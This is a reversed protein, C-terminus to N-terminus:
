LNGIRDTSTQQVKAVDRSVLNNRAGNITQDQMQTQAGMNRLSSVFAPSQLESVPVGIFQSLRVQQPFPLEQAKGEVEALLQGIMHGYLTPYVEVLTERHAATFTGAALHDLAMEPNDVIEVRSLFEDVQTASPNKTKPLAEALYFMAKGTLSAADVLSSNNELGQMSRGMAEVLFDPNTILNNIEGSVQDYEERKFEKSEFVRSTAGITRFAATRVAPSEFSAAAKAAGVDIRDITKAVSEGIAESMRGSAVSKGVRRGFSFAFPSVIAGGVGGLASFAAGSAMSGFAFPLAEQMFGGGAARTPNIDALEHEVDRVIKMLRVVGPNEISGAGRELAGLADKLAAKQSALSVDDFGPVNLKGLDDIERSIKLVKRGLSQLADDDGAKIVSHLKGGRKGSISRIESLAERVNQVALDAAARQKGANGFLEESRKVERLEELLERKYGHGKRAKQFMEDTTLRHVAEQLDAGNFSGNQFKEVVDDIQDGLARGFKDGMLDAQSRAKRAIEELVGMARTSVSVDLNPKAKAWSADVSKSIDKINDVAKAMDKYVGEAEKALNKVRHKNAQLIEIGQVKRGSKELVRAAADVNAENAKGSLANRRSIKKAERIGEAGVERAVKAAQQEASLANDGLRASRRARVKNALASGTKVAMQGAKLVGAGLAADKFITEASMKRTQADALIAETATSEALLGAGTRVAGPLASVAKTTRVAAGVPLLGLSAVGGAMLATSVPHEQVGYFDELKEQDTRMDPLIAQKGVRSAADLAGKERQERRVGEEVGGLIGKVGRKGLALDLGVIEEPDVDGSELQSRLFDFSSRRLKGDMFFQVEGKHGMNVANLVERGNSVGYPNGNKDIAKFAGAEAQEMRSQDAKAARERLAKKKDFGM